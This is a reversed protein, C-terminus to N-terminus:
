DPPNSDIIQRAERLLIRAMVWDNWYGTWPGLPEFPIPYVGTLAKNIRKEAEDLERRAADTEGTIQHAMALVLQLISLRALNANHLERSVEAWDIAERPMSLRLNLLALSIARWAALDRNGERVPKMSEELLVALNSMKELYEERAPRLLVAKMLQEAVQPNLTGGLRNLMDERYKEYGDLDGAEILSPGPLLIDRRLVLFQPTQFRNAETLLVFCEAAQKWRGSIANWEGLSCLVETAEINSDITSIPSVKLLADAEEFRRESVLLAARSINARTVVEKRLIEERLHAEEAAKRQIEEGRRAENTRILLVTSVALAIILAAAITLGSFVPIRNRRVFKRVAYWGGPPGASVPQNDLYRQIDIALANATQYRRSRDKELAKMVIWDLEGRLVSPLHAADLGRCKAVREREAADGLLVAASPKPPDREMLIKRMESLGLRTMEDKDFPPRGTLLEYLMAGLSYIDSRTDVDIGGMDVQEPSMYSPTGVWEDRLTLATGSRRAEAAKAIGFDIVKPLPVGDVVAVLVNSPKIDRHIIGKQHAHQIAHCVAIFLGLRGPLDMGRADCFTTIREGGALEMVFFPRGADTSGADLVRCINPHDMLALAQRELNFRAIVSKTDMGLRIIKLAVLRHVPSRQEAEYVVGCGGEGLLKLISYPGVETGVPDSDASDVTSLGRPEVGAEGALEGALSARDESAKLFFSVSDRSAALLKEMRALGEADEAYIRQLFRRRLEGDEIGLAADFIALEVERAESM